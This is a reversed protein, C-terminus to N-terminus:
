PLFLKKSDEMITEQVYDQDGEEELADLFPGINGDIDYGNVYVTQDLNTFQRLGPVTPTGSSNVSGHNLSPTDSM